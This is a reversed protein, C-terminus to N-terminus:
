TQQASEDFRDTCGSIICGRCETVGLEALQQHRQVLLTEGVVGDHDHGSLSHAATSRRNLERAAPQVQCVRARQVTVTPPESFVVV